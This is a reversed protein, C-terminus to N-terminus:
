RKALTVNTQFRNYLPDENLVIKPIKFFIYLAFNMRTLVVYAIEVLVLKVVYCYMPDGVLVIKIGVLFGAERAELRARRTAIYM